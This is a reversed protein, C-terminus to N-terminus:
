LNKIMTVNEEKEEDFFRCVEQFGLKRYFIINDESAETWIKKKGRERAWNCVKGVLTTGVGKERHEEKVAVWDLHAEHYANHQKLCRDEVDYGSPTGVLWGGVVGVIVNEDKALIVISEEEGLMREMYDVDIDHSRLHAWVSPLHKKVTSAEGKAVQVYTVLTDDKKKLLM